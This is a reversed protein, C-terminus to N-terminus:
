RTPCPPKRLRFRVDCYDWPLVGLVSGLRNELGQLARFARRPVLGLRVAYVSPLKGYRLIEQDHFEFGAGRFLALFGSITRRHQWVRPDVTARRRVQEIAVLWGGPRLVRILEGLVAELDHDDMIHNLVVYTVVADVSEDRVPLRSGDYRIFLNERSLGRERTRSLLGASIDVGIVSRGSGAVAASLGGTGCGFDLVCGSAGVEDLGSTIARDRLQTIYANKHGRRDNPDIVSADPPHAALQDWHRSQENM